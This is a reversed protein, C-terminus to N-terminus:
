KGKRIEEAVAGAAVEWAQRIRESLEGWLPIPKGDYTQGGVKERYAEFAVQGLTKMM